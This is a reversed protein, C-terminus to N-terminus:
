MRRCCAFFSALPAFFSSKSSRKRKGSGMGGAGGTEGFLLHRRKFRALRQQGLAWTYQPAWLANEERLILTPLDDVILIYVADTSSAFLFWCCPVVRGVVITVVVLPTVVQHNGPVMKCIAIFDNVREALTRKALNELASIVACPLRNSDLDDAVFFSEMM